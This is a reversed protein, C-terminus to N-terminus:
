RIYASKGNGRIDVVSSHQIHQPHDKPKILDDKLKEM